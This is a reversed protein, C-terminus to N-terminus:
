DFYIIFDRLKLGTIECYLLLDELQPPTKGTEWNVVVNETTSFVLALERRSIMNDMGKRCKECNLGECDGSDTRNKFCCYRRLNFNGLRLEQLRTGTSEWDIYRRQIVKM